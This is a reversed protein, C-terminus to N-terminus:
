NAEQGALQQAGTRINALMRLGPDRMQTHWADTGMPSCPGDTRWYLNLAAALGAPTSPVMSVARAELEHLNDMMDAYLAGSVRDREITRHMDACRADLEILPDVADAFQLAEAKLTACGEPENGAELLTGIKRLAEIATRPPAAALAREADRLKTLAADSAAEAAPCDECTEHDFVKSQAGVAADHTARAQELRAIAREIASM